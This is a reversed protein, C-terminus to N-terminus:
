TWLKEAMQVSNFFFFLFLILFDLLLAGKHKNQVASDFIHGNRSYIEIKRLVFECFM